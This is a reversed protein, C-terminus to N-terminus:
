FWCMTRSLQNMSGPGWTQSSGARSTRVILRFNQVSAQPCRRRHTVLYTWQSSNLDDFIIKTWSDTKLAWANTHTDPSDRQLLVVHMAVKDQSCGFRVVKMEGVLKPTNNQPPHISWTTHPCGGRYTVIQKNWQCPHSIYSLLISRGCDKSDWAIMKEQYISTETKRDGKAQGRRYKEKLSPVDM